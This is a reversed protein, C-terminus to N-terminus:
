MPWGLIDPVVVHIGSFSCLPSPETVVLIKAFYEQGRYGKGRGKVNNKFLISGLYAFVFNTICSTQMHGDGVCVTLHPM